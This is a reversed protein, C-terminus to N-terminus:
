VREPRARRPRRRRRPGVRDDGDALLCNVV